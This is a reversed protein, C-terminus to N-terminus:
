KGVFTRRKGVMDLIDQAVVTRAVTHAVTHAVALQIMHCMSPIMHCIVLAISITYTCATLIISTSVTWTYPIAIFRYAIMYM